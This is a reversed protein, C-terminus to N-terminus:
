RRVSSSPLYGASSQFFRQRRAKPGEEPQQGARLDDLNASCAGCGVVELHFAIYDALEPALADLLYAGLQSRPPCGIQHRRWISAISHEGRDRRVNLQTLQRRLPESQRLAKEIQSAEAAPLTEDLYGVLESETITPSM